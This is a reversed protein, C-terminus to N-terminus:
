QPRAAPGDTPVAQPKTAPATSAPTTEPRTEPKTQPASQPMKQPRPKPAASSAPPTKGQAGTGSPVRLMEQIQTIGAERTAIIQEALLRVRHDSGHELVVRAMDIAGQHYAVMGRLFDQDPNGTLPVDMGKHMKQMAQRYAANADSSAPQGHQHPDGSDQAFAAPAALM